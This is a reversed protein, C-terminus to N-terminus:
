KDLGMKKLMASYRPDPHLNEWVPDVKLYELQTNREAYGKELWAFANDNDGLGAYVVAIQAAVAHDKPSFELLQNLIRIAEEKKGARACVNGMEGAGYPDNAGAIQRVRQLERIAEDFRGQQAHLYGLDVLAWLSNPDLELAKNFQEIALDYRLLYFLVEGVTASIIPSLPDLEQARKAESLAETLRGQGELFNAYWHHATPFNPDLELARKFEKEAGDWDWQFTERISALVTHAEALTWDLELARKAAAEAKPMFEGQPLLSYNPLISYASALGAYALAFNPDKEIAENFYNVAKRLDDVTRKNWHFKGKLYLQYAETNDTPHKALKKEEEGVLRVSLQQSMERSIEEQVLLIDSLRRNYQRGWIHNSNSVDVLETSIQLNDGRQSVRGVLVAKVGMERGAKIPDVDKGKYHFVSTRSRVSLHSLQSLTNILTETIGDSLYETNPDAGVNEFPLVAISDISAARPTFLYTGLGILVIVGFSALGIKLWRSQSGVRSSPPIPLPATEHFESKRQIRKGESARRYRKLDVAVERMSQYREERDKELCKMVVRNVEPEIGKHEDMLSAPEVNIIEYMMATEHEARFPLHGSLMEYLVVGFSFIDTRHDTELGEVQEPAMYAVTGVTSGAQTLKSVGKLKALGFDMIKARGDSTVMINDSKVDRHIIGKEHAKELGEAIQGALDVAEKMSLKRYGEAHDAKKRIWERLTVGDVYEMVIFSENDAEDVDYIVCINPHNLASAAQAEQSFREREEGHASLRKPLFKIAVIRKLKLDEAKYVVGMGGEGLKELIKYHSITQGIM